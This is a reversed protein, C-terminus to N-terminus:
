RFHDHGKQKLPYEKGGEEIVRVGASADVVEGIAQIPIGLEEALKGVAREKEPASTFLLEYDEGGSLALAYPDTSYGEVEKRYEESIPLRSLWIKAGVKSTEVIHGLDAVLGDSIDIMATALSQRAIAQGEKVRPLPALHRQVPGGDRKGQKLMELGLAADGLSGTVFILDGKRAGERYIIAGEEAEGILTISILLGNGRSTDGGVLSVKFEQSQELMGQYLAQVFAVETEAPITLSVLFATPTGGCAAIDSLNVAVAKRGLRYPDTLELRFHVKELLLDTTVLFVKGPSPRLVAVDDGIGKIVGEGEATMEKIAAILAFEGIEALKM